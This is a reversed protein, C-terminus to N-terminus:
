RLAAEGARAIERGTRLDGRDAPEAIGRGRMNRMLAEIEADDHGPRLFHAARHPMSMLYPTSEMLSLREPSSIVPM